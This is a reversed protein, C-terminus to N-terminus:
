DHSGEETLDEEDDVETKCDECIYGTERYDEYTDIRAGCEDCYTDYFYMEYYM